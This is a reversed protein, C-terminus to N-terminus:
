SKQCHRSLMLIKKLVPVTLGKVLNPTIIARIEEMPIDEQMLVTEEVIEKVPHIDGLDQFPDVEKIQVQVGQTFHYFKQHVKREGIAKLRKQKTFQKLSM